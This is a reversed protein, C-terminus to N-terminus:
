PDFSLLCTFYGRFHSGPDAVSTGVSEPAAGFPMLDLLLVNVLRCHYLITVGVRTPKGSLSNGNACDRCRTTPAVRHRVGSDVSVGSVPRSRRGRRGARCQTGPVRREPWQTGHCEACTRDFAINGLAALGQDMTWPYRTPNISEIWALIDEFDDECEAFQEADKQPLISTPMPARHSKPSYVDIDMATGKGICGASAKYKRSGSVM